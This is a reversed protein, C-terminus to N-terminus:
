TVGMVEFQPWEEHGHRVMRRLITFEEQYRLIPRVLRLYELLRMFWNKRRVHIPEVMLGMLQKTASKPLSLVKVQNDAHDLIQFTHREVPKYTNPIYHRGLYAQCKFVIHDNDRNLKFFDM